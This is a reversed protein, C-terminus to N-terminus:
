CWRLKFATSDVQDRISIRWGEVLWREGMRGFQEHCWRATESSQRAEIDKAVFVYKWDSVWPRHVFFTDVQFKM